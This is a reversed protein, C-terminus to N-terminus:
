LLIHLKRALFTIKRPAKPLYRQLCYVSLFAGFADIIMDRLTSQRGPIFSQHLEDSIGYLTALIVASIGAEPKKVGENVLARYILLSLLGYEILHATKKVIFDQWYFDSTKAVPHSSFLFILLSWFVVPLWFVIAKEILRRKKKM